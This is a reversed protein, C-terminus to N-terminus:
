LMSVWGTGLHNLNPEFLYKSIINVHLDTEALKLQFHLTYFLLVTISLLQNYYNKKKKM